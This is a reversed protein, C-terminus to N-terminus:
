SRARRQHVSSTNVPGLSVLDLSCQDPKFSAERLNGILAAMQYASQRVIELREPEAIAPEEDMIEKAM